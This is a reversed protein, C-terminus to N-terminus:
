GMCLHVTIVKVEAQGFLPPKGQDLATVTFTSSRQFRDYDVSKRLIIEGSEENVQFLSVESNTKYIIKGNSGIDADTANLKLVTAGAATSEPMTVHYVSKPFEPKNDNIDNLTINVLVASSLSEPDKGQDEAKVTFVFYPNHERDLRDTNTIAGSKPDITFPVYTDSGKVINYVIERNIGDDADSARVTLIYKKGQEEDISKTYKSQDFVPANDNVDTITVSISVTATQSKDEADTAVFDLSFIPSGDERDLKKLVKVEGSTTGIQFKDDTKQDAIKSFIYSGSGGTVKLTVIVTNEPSNEKIEEEYFNKEFALQTFRRKRKLIQTKQIFEITLTTPRIHDKISVICHIPLSVPQFLLRQKIHLKNSETILIANNKINRCHITTRSLNHFIQPLNIRHNNWPIYLKYSDNIIEISFHPKQKSAQQSKEIKLCIKGNLYSKNPLLNLLDFCVNGNPVDTNSCDKYSYLKHDDTLFFDPFSESNSFSCYKWDPIFYKGFDVLLCRQHGFSDALLKDATVFKQQFLLLLLLVFANVNPINFNWLRCTM